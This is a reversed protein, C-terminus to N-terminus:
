VIAKPDIGRYILDLAKSLGGSSLPEFAISKSNRIMDLQRILNRTDARLAAEDELSEITMSVKYPTFSPQKTIEIKM